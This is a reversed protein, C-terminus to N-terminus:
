AGAGRTWGVVAYDGLEIPIRLVGDADRQLTLSSVPGPAVVVATLKAMGKLHLVVPTREREPEATTADLHPGGPGAWASQRYQRHAHNIVVAAGRRARGPPTPRGTSVYRLDVVEVLPLRNPDIPLGGFTVWASRGDQLPALGISSLALDLIQFFAGRHAQAAGLHAPPAMYGTQLALVDEIYVTGPRRSQLDIVCGTGACRLEPAALTPGHELWAQRTESRDQDFENRLATGLNGQTQRGAGLILIGGASVWRAVAHFVDDRLYPTDVYLVAYSNLPSAGIVIGDVVAEEFVLDVPLQEHTFMAHVGHFEIGLLYPFLFGKQPDDPLTWISETQPVLMAVRTSVRESGKFFSSTARLVNMASRGQALPQYAIDGSNGWGTKLESYADGSFFAEFYLAGRSAWRLAKIDVRDNSLYVGLPRTAPAFPRESGHPLRTLARAFDARVGGFILHNWIQSERTYDDHMWVVDCAGSRVTHYSEFGWYGIPKSLNTYTLHPAGSVAQKLASSATVLLALNANVWHRFQCYWQVRGTTTAQALARRVSIPRPPTQPTGYECLDHPGNSPVVDDFRSYDAEVGNFVNSGDALDTGVSVTCFVGSLDSLNQLIDRALPRLEALINSPAGFQEGRSWYGVRQDYEGMLHQWYGQHYRSDTRVRLKALREIRVGIGQEDRAALLNSQLPTWARPLRFNMEALEDLFKQRLAAEPGGVPLVFPMPALTDGIEPLEVLWEGRGASQEIAWGQQGRAFQRAAAALVDHDSQEPNLCLNASRSLEPPAVAVLSETSAGSGEGSIKLLDQWAFPTVIRLLDYRRAEAYAASTEAAQSASLSSTDAILLSVGQDQCFRLMTALKVRGEGGLESRTDTQLHLVRHAWRFYPSTDAGTRPGDGPEIRPLHPSNADLTLREAYSLIRRRDSGNYGYHALNALYPLISWTCESTQPEVPFEFTLMGNDGVTENGNFEVYLRADGRAELRARLPGAGPTCGPTREDLKKLDAATQVLKTDTIDVSDIWVSTKYDRLAYVVFSSLAVDTTVASAFSGPVEPAETVTLELSLASVNASLRFLVFGFANLHRPRLRDVYTPLLRLQGTPLSNLAPPNIIEVRPSLAYHFGFAYTPVQGTSDPESSLSVDFEITITESPGGQGPQPPPPVVGDISVSWDHQEPLIVRRPAIALPPGKVLPALTAAFEDDYRNIISM